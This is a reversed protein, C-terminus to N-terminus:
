KKKKQKTTKDKKEIRSKDEDGYIEEKTKRLAPFLIVDRISPSNTLIMAIRDIGISIGCTPPMGYEVARIFDEDMPHAEEDGAQSRKLEELFRRKLEIPDNIETYNNGCERGTIFFEFRETFKPNDDCKKALASVEVPYDYVITPQILNHEVFEEFIVDILEGKKLGSDIKVNHRKIYDALEKESSKMVDLNLHKKIVDVMKIRKWPPTFDIETGQYNVKMAGLVKKAAYSVLNEVLDMGGKYDIYATMAELLLFEPNHSTDIGENRFDSSFEFVKELGGVILRKLYMENSIRLYMKMDLSNHHTVFPRAFAGGYIPQLIPTEVELYGEKVFYERIAHIVKSRITFTKKIDPNMILDVYRQRYRTEVDKLGYWESPLPRLSKTLLTFDEVWISLEGKITKFIFGTIGVIDGVDTNEFVNYNKEGITDLTIWLQIKGTMDELDAFGAKGHRRIRKIRGAISVKENKLKEDPTIDSFNEAIFVINHSREFKKHSFPDVGIKRLEELKKIREERLSELNKNENM